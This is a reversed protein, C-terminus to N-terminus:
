LRRKAEEQTKSSHCNLCLAQLNELTTQGGKSWPVLHDCEFGNALDANCIACRYNQIIALLNRETRTALRRMFQLQEIAGWTSAHLYEIKSTNLDASQGSRWGLELSTSGRGALL